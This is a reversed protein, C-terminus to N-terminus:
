KVTIDKKRKMRIMMKLLKFHSLERDFLSNLEAGLLLIYMLIYLWIMVIIITTLSGYMSFGGFYKLYIQFFFSFLLWGTAAFCAGFIQARAKPRKPKMNPLWVYLVIFFLTLVCWMFIYRLYQFLTKIMVFDPIYQEALNLLANGFVMLVLSLVIMLLFLVTDLCATLRMLVMNRTEEVENVGNLARILAEIGKGAVWITAIITVSIVTVSKGYIEEILEIAFADLTTPLFDTVARMLDAERVPTYPLISCVLIMMPILSLFIFFAASSAHITINDKKLEQSFARIMQLKKM